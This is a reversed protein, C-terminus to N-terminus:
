AKYKVRSAQRESDAFPVIELIRKYKETQPVTDPCLNIVVDTPILGSLTGIIVPAKSSNADEATTHPLFRRDPHQWMQDDLQSVLSETAAILYTKQKHEWAMMALRCAFEGAQM